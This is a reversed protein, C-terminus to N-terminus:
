QNKGSVRGNISIKSNSKMQKQYTSNLIKEIDGLMPNHSQFGRSRSKRHASQRRSMALEEAIIDAPLKGGNSTSSRRIQTESMKKRSVGGGGVGDNDISRRASGAKSSSTRSSTKM